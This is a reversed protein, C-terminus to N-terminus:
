RVLKVNFGPTGTVGYLRVWLVVYMEMGRANTIDGLDLVDRWGFETLLGSAVTKAEADNGCVFMTHDGGGVREPYIMVQNAVTNLTKVVRAEPFARQIREGLSDFTGVFLGPPFGQSFDLANSVDIVIKGAGAGANTLAEISGEGHSANVIVEGHAGAEAQTVLRYGSWDEGKALTQAVDRTGVVVDHGLEALRGALARGVAGTGLIGLKMLIVMDRKRALFGAFTM